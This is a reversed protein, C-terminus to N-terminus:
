ASASVVLRDPGELDSTVIRPSGHLRNNISILEEDIESLDEILRERRRELVARRTKLAAADVAATSCPKYKKKPRIVRLYGEIERRTVDARILNEVAANKLQEDDLTQLLYSTTVPPLMGIHFNQGVAEHFRGSDFAKAFAMVKFAMNAKFRLIREGSEDKPDAIYHDFETKTLLNETKILDRGTKLAAEISESWHRNTSCRLKALQELRHGDSAVGFGKMHDSLLTLSQKEEAGTAVLTDAQIDSQELIQELQIINPRARV